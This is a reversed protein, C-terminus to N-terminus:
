NGRLTFRFPIALWVSVPRNNMLAPTFVWQMAAEISPQNFIDNNSNLVEAQRVKGEKDVWVRLTVTGEIGARRAIEPYPPYVSKVPMPFKEIGIKWPEQPIDEEPITFLPEGEREGDLIGSENWARNEPITGEGVIETVPVPVPIGFNTRVGEKPRDIRIDTGIPPPPPILEWSVDPRKPKEVSQEHSTSAWYTGILFFHFAAAVVFGDTMFKVYHKKLESAGYHSDYPFAFAAM